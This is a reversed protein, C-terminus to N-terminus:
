QGKTKLNAEVTSFVDQFVYFIESYHSNFFIRSDSSDFYDSPSTCLCILQIALQMCIAFYDEVTKCHALDCIGLLTRLARLRSHSEKKPDIFRHTTKKIDPHARRNHFMNRDWVDLHFQLFYRWYDRSTWEHRPLWRWEVELHNCTQAHTVNDFYKGVPFPRPLINKRKIYRKSSFFFWFYFHYLILVKFTFNWWFSSIELHFIRKICFLQVM